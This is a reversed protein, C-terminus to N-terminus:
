RKAGCEVCYKDADGFSKGCNSCYSVDSVEEANGVNLSNNEDESKNDAHVNHKEKIPEIDRLIYIDGKVDVVEYLTCVEKMNVTDDFIVEYENKGTHVEKPFCTGVVSVPLM